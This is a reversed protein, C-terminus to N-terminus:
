IQHKAQSSTHAAPAARFHFFSYHSSLSLFSPFSLLPYLPIYHLPSSKTPLMYKDADGQRQRERGMGGLVDSSEVM